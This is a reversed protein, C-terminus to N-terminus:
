WDAGPVGPVICSGIDGAYVDFGEDDNGAPSDSREMIRLMRAQLDADREIEAWLTANAAEEMESDVYAMLLADSYQDPNQATVLADGKEM